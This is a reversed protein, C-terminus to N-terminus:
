LDEEANFLAPTTFDLRLERLRQGEELQEVVHYSLAVELNPHEDKLLELYVPSFELIKEAEDFRLCQSQIKNQAKPQTEAQNLLFDAVLAADQGFVKASKLFYDRESFLCYPYDQQAYYNQQYIQGSFKNELSCYHVGMSFDQELAFALLGLCAAESGAIPLGGAYWYDYLVRMQRSKIKYGRRKFEKANNFPFCLELLNIGDIGIGNLKLLLEKMLKLEDPMVPMEVVVYKLHKRALAIRNLTEQQERQSDDTKYSFRIEQLGANALERLYPEDLFAGSTYLRTYAGSFFLRAINFFELTEEKHLLPEGGTLAIDSLKMNHSHLETLQAVPNENTHLLQEYNAQNPNFCFFCSRPCRTSITYTASGVGTRCAFCSSSLWGTRLSKRDNEIILGKAALAEIAPNKTTLLNDSLAQENNAVPENTAAPEGAAIPKATVPEDPAVPLGFQKIQSRFNADIDFYIRVNDRFVPNAIKAFVEPTIQYLM